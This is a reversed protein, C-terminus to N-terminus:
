ANSRFAPQGPAEATGGLSRRPAETLGVSM